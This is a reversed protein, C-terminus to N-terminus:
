ISADLLLRVRSDTSGFGLLGEVELKEGDVGVLPFHVVLESDIPEVSCGVTDDLMAAPKRGSGVVEENLKEGRVGGPVGGAKM